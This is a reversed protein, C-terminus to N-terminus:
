WQADYYTQRILAIAGMLSGPYDQTSTGPDFSLSAAARDRIVLDNERGSGLVVLASTGRVIGDRNISMVSGFGLKRLEDAKKSDANFNKYADYEARVSQNWNYAGKLNTLLQPTESPAPKKIEPSGYDSFIDILSPYIFKGNLNFVVADNPISIAKGADVVIGDRILLTADETKTKFDTFITAHTFAYTIHKPDTTGNVPFTEQAKTGFGFITLCIILRIKMFYPLTAFTNM